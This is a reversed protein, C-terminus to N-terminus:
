KTIVKAKAGKEIIGDGGVKDIAKVGVAKKVPTREKKEAQEAETKKVEDNGAVAPAAIMALLAFAAFLKRM